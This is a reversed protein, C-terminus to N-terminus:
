ASACEVVLTLREKRHGVTAGAAVVRMAGYRRASANTWFWLPEGSASRTCIAHLEIRADIGHRVPSSRVSM